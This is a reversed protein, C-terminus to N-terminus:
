APPSAESQWEVLPADRWLRELQYFERSELTFVHVIVDFFDLLIWAGERRGEIHAAKAGQKRRNKDLADVLARAHTDSRGSCLIMYDTFGAIGRMDLAVLNEGKGAALVGLMEQVHEPLEVATTGNKAQADAM